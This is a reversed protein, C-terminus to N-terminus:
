QVILVAINGHQHIPSGENMAPVHEEALNFPRAIPKFHEAQPAAAVGDGLSLQEPLPFHRDVIHPIALPKNPGPGALIVSEGNARVEDLLEAILEDANPPAPGGRLKAIIRPM